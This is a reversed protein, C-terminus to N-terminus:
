GRCLLQLLAAQGGIAQDHAQTIAGSLLWSVLGLVLLVLATGRWWRLQRTVMHTQHHLTQIHHELAELREHLHDM